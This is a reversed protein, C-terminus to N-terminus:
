PCGSGLLDMGHADFFQRLWEVQEETYTKNVMQERTPLEPRYNGIESSKGLERFFDEM